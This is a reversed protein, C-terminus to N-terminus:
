RKLSTFPVYDLGLSSAVAKHTVVGQYTNLGKQLSRDDTAAAVIGKDAIRKGWAITANALAFTSTHAVAGPMNTVGYHIVGHVTHTPHDHTTPKATEICGGQDIAVDVIVSGHEMSRVMEETVLRPARAGAVLVAGIVLDARKVWEAVTHPDSYLTSVRGTYIDDVYKLTDPNVDLVAVSASL